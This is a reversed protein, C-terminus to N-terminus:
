ETDFRAIAENLEDGTQKLIEVANTMEAVAQGTVEMDDKIMTMNSSVENTVSSAEGVNRVVEGIGESVESINRSIDRTTTAQEETATAITDVFENEERIIQTINEIEVITSQAAEQIAEIKSRIDSTATNTQQALEKVESAVVAFGKGAEGARAAEITANLALLKTQDAIEVITETVQSVENAAAGLGKVKESATGVASAAQDAVGRAREANQAIEAVTSTMEETATSVSHINELSQESNTSVNAMTVNLEEAATSVSNTQENVTETKLLMDNAAQSIGEVVNALANASQQVSVQVVKQTALADEAVSKAEQADKSSIEAEEKSRNADNISSKLSDLMNRLSDALEGIEDEQHIGVVAELNGGAIEEASQKIENVPKTIKSIVIYLGFAVIFLSLFGSVVLIRKLNTIKKQSEAQFMGVAANMEGLIKPSNEEILKIANSFIESGEDESLVVKIAGGYEKWTDIVIALQQSIENIETPPLLVINGSGGTTEGGEAIAFLSTEFLNHTKELQAKHQENNGMWKGVQLAEKAMRQSLMRQRGAINIVLGDNKQKNVASYTTAIIGVIFLLFVLFLLGMKNQIKKLSFM